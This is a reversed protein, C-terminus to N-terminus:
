TWGSPTSRVCVCTSSTGRRRALWSRRTVIAQEAATMRKGKHNFLTNYELVAPRHGTATDLGVVLSKFNAQAESANGNAGVAQGSLCRGKAHLSLGDLYGLLARAAPGAHPAAPTLGGTPPPSADDGMSADDDDLSKEAPTMADVEGPTTLDTGGRPTPSEDCAALLVLAAVMRARSTM